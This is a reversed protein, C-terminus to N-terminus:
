ERPRKPTAAKRGKEAGGMRDGPKDAAPPIQLRLVADVAAAIWKEVTIGATEAATQARQAVDGRLLVVPPADVGISTRLEDHTLKLATALKGFNGPHVGASDMGEIATIRGKSIGAERALAEQSLFKANRLRALKKGSIKISNTTAVVRTLSSPLPEDIVLHLKSTSM